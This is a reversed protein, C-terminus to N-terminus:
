LHTNYVFIAVIRQRFLVKLGNRGDRIHVLDGDDPVKVKDGFEVFLVVKEVLFVRAEQRSGLFGDVFKQRRAFGKLDVRSGNGASVAGYRIGRRSQKRVDPFFAAFRDEGTVGM